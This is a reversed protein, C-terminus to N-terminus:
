LWNASKLVKMRGRSVPVYTGDHLTIYPKANRRTVEKVGAEAVWWSRHPSLGSLPAMESAADSLRMLILDEGASTIIRVYHDQAELAYIESRRLAPKLRSMLAPQATTAVSHPMGDQRKQLAGIASITIAIVWIYFLSLATAGLSQEPHIQFVFLSVVATAGISQLAAIPWRKLTPALRSAAYQALAAGIGGALCLGIWYTFRGTASFSGTGLPALIALVGGATVSTLLLPALFQFPKTQM